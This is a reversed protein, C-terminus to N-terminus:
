KENMLMKILPIQQIKEIKKETDKEDIDGIMKSVNDELIKGLLILRIEHYTKLLLKDFLENPSAVDFYELLIEIRMKKIGQINFNKSSLRLVERIVKIPSKFGWQEMLDFLISQDDETLLMQYYFPKKKSLKDYWYHKLNM